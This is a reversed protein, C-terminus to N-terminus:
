RGGRRCPEQWRGCITSTPVKSTRRRSRPLRVRNRFASHRLLQGEPSTCLLGDAGPLAHETLHDEVAPLVPAPIIVVRRGATTKPPAFFPVKGNVETLQRSIRVTATGIDIDRRRM